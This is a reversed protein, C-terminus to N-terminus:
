PDPVPDVGGPHLPHCRLVRKLALLSGRWPGHLDIAEVAYRSCTPYFRCRIGLAPSVYRRYFALAAMLARGIALRARNAASHEESVMQM